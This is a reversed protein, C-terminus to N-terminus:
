FNDFLKAFNLVLLVLMLQIFLGTIIFWDSNLQLINNFYNM